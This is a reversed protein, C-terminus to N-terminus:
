GSGARDATVLLSCASDNPGRVTRVRQKWSASGSKEFDPRGLPSLSAVFSLAVKSACARRVREVKRRSEAGRVESSSRLSSRTPELAKRQLEHVHERTRVLASCSSVLAFRSRARTGSTAPRRTQSEVESAVTEGAKRREFRRTPLGRLGASVSLHVHLADVALLRLSHAREGGAGGGRAAMGLRTPDSTRARAAQRERKGLMSPFSSLVSAGAGLRLAQAPRADRPPAGGRRLLSATCFGCFLVPARLRPLFSLHARTSSSRRSAARDRSSTRGPRRCTWGAARAPCPGGRFPPALIPTAFRGEFSRRKVKALDVADLRNNLLFASGAGICVLM